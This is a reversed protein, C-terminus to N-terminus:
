KIRKVYLFSIDGEINVVGAVSGKSVQVGLTQGPKVDFLDILLASSNNHGSAARIYTHKAHAKGPEGDLTARVIPASRQPNTGTTWLGVQAYVEVRGEFQPIIGRESVDWDLNVGIFDIDNTLPITTPREQSVNEAGELIVRIYSSEVPDLSGSESVTQELAPIDSPEDSGAALGQDAISGERVFEVTGDQNEYAKYTTAM